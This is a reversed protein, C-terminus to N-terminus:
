RSFYGYESFHLVNNLLQQYNAMQQCGQLSPSRFCLFLFSTAGTKQEPFMQFFYLVILWWTKVYHIASQETGAYFARERGKVLWLSPLYHEGKQGLPLEATHTQGLCSGEISSQLVVIVRHWISPLTFEFFPVAGSTVWQCTFLGVTQGKLALRGM